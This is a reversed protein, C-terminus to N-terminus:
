AASEGRLITRRIKAESERHQHSIRGGRGRRTVTCDYGCLIPAIDLGQGGEGAVPIRHRKDPRPLPRAPIRKGHRLWAVAGPNPVPDPDALIAAVDLANDNLSPELVSAMVSAPRLVRLRDGYCAPWKELVVSPMGYLGPGNHRARTLHLERPTVRRFPLNQAGSV